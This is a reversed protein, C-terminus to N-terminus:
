SIAWQLFPFRIHVEPPVHGDKEWEEAYPMLDNEVYERVFQRLRKHSEDYYPSSDRYYWLPEAFPAPVVM